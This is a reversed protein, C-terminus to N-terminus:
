EKEWLHLSGMPCPTVEPAQTLFSRSHSPTPNLVPNEWPPPQNLPFSSHLDGHGGDCCEGLHGDLQHKSSIRCM